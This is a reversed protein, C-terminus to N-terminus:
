PVDDARITGIKPIRGFTYVALIKGYIIAFLKGYFVAILIGYKDSVM